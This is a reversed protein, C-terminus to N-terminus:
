RENGSLGATVKGLLFLAFADAAVGALRGERLNLL